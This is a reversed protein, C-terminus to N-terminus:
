LSGHCDYCHGTFHRRKASVDRRAKSLPQPQMNHMMLEDRLVDSTTDAGALALHQAKKLASGLKEVAPADMCRSHGEIRGFLNELKRAFAVHHDPAPACGIQKTIHRM